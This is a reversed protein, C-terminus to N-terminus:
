MQKARPKMTKLEEIRKDIHDAMESFMAAMSRLREQLEKLAAIREKASAKEDLLLVRTADTLMPPLAAGEADIIQISSLEKLMWGRISSAVDFHKEVALRFVARGKLTIEYVKRREEPRWSGKILGEEELERLAPYIGGATPAIVGLTMENIRRMLNYGHTPERTLAFLIALKLYGKRMQKRWFSAIEEAASRM